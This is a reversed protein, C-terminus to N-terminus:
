HATPTDDPPLGNQEPTSTPEPPRPTITVTQQAQSEQAM